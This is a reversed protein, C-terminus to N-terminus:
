WGNKIITIVKKLPPFTGDAQLYEKFIVKRREELYQLRQEYTTSALYRWRDEEMEEFSNYFTITKKSAPRTYEAQPENVENKPEDDM